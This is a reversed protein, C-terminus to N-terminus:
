RLAADIRDLISRLEAALSAAEIGVMPDGALASLEDRISVLERRAERLRSANALSIAENYRRVLDELELRSRVERLREELQVKLGGDSTEALAAVLTAEVEQLSGETVADNVRGVISSRDLEDRLREALRANAPAIAHTLLHEAGTRDGADLRALALNYAIDSRGPLAALARELHAVAEEARSGAPALHTRGLLARAEALEPDIELARGLSARAAEVRDPDTAGSGRLLTEAHLFYSLAEAAGEELARAFHRAAAEPERGQIALLGLTAWADPVEAVAAKLHEVAQPHDALALYTGLRYLAIADPIPRTELAAREGLAAAPVRLIPFTPSNVYGRLQKELEALGLGMTERLASDPDEGGSVRRFFSGAARGRTRDTLLFHVVLWSQSYFTGRRDRENYDASARTVAFLQSMPVFSHDRLWRLRGEPPAGLVIEGGRQELTSFYEALGENLWLPLGTFNNALHAHVYEHYVVRLPDTREPYAELFLFYAWPHGFFHGAIGEPDGGVLSRYPAYDEESRFAFVRVPLPTEHRLGPQILRLAGQFGAFAEAIQRTKRANANSTLVFGPSVIELWDDEPDPLAWAAAGSAALCPTLLAVLCAARM